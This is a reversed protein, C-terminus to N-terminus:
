LHDDKEVKGAIAKVIAETMKGDGKDLLQHCSTVHPLKGEAVCRVLTKKVKELIPCSSSESLNAEGFFEYRTELNTDFCHNTVGAKKKLHFAEDSIKEKAVVKSLEPSSSVPANLNVNSDDWYDKEDLDEDITSSSIKLGMDVIKSELISMEDDFNEYKPQLIPVTESSDAKTVLQKAEKNM